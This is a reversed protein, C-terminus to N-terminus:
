EAAEVEVPEAPRAKREGALPVGSAEATVITISRLDEPELNRVATKGTCRAMISAETSLANLISAAADIREAEARDGYFHIDRGVIEGGLALGMAVGVVAASACLSVLKAGDTGTRVGGFYILDVDEEANLRRLIRLADRIVSLDPNAALESWPEAIGPTADLLLLDIGAALAFPIAAELEAARVALGVIKDGQGGKLASPHFGDRAVHIYGDAAPDTTDEGAVVLQLWRAGPMRTRGIYASGVQSLAQGLAVKIEASAHDFGTVIFPMALTMKGAIRSSVDCADRYPDIVLRSLNAPLFVLDDLTPLHAAPYPNPRQELRKRLITRQSAADDPRTRAMVFIEERLRVSYEASGTESDCRYCRAAEDRATKEDYTSEIEPFAV